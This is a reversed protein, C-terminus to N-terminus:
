FISQSQSFIYFRLNVKYFDFLSKTIHVYNVAEASCVFALVSFTVLQVNCASVVSACAGFVLTLYPVRLSCKRGAWFEKLGSSGEQQTVSVLWTVGSIHLIKCM